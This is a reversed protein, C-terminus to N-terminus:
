IFISLTPSHSYFLFESTVNESDEGGLASFSPKMYRLYLSIDDTFEFKLPQVDVSTFEAATLLRTISEKTAVSGHTFMPPSVFGQAVIKFSELWGPATWSTIGLKV